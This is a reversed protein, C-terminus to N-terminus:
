ATTNPAANASFWKITKRKPKQQVYKANGAKRKRKRIERIKSMQHRVPEVLGEEQNVVQM